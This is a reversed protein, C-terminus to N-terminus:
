RSYSRLAREIPEAGVMGVFKEREIFVLPLGDAGVSEYDARDRELRELPKSSRMCAKFGEMDLGTSQALDLIGEDSFGGGRILAEHMPPLKGQEEACVAAIALRTAGPHKDELPVHKVVVRIHGQHEELIPAIQSALDQCHPCRYDVFEIVTIQNPGSAEIERDIVSSKSCATFAAITALLFAPRRRM